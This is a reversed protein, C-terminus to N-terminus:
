PYVKAIFGRLAISEPITLTLKAPGHTLMVTKKDENLFFGADPNGFKSPYNKAYNIADVKPIGVTWGKIVLLGTTFASVKVQSVDFDIEDIYTSSM